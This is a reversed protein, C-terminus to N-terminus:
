FFLTQAPAPGAIGVPLCFSCRTFLLLPLLRTPWCFPFAEPQSRVVALSRAVNSAAGQFSELYPALCVPASIQYASLCFSEGYNDLCSFPVYGRNTIVLQHLQLGPNCLNVKEVAGKESIEWETKGQM